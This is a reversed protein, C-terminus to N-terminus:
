CCFFLVSVHEAMGEVSGFKSELKQLEVEAQDTQRAMLLVQVLQLLGAMSLFAAIYM